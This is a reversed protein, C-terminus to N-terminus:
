GLRAKTRMCWLRLGVNGVNGQRQSSCAFRRLILLGGFWGVGVVVVVVMRVVFVMATARQSAM